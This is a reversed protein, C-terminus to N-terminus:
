MPSQNTKTAEEYTPPCTSPLNIGISYDLPIDVFGDSKPLTVNESQHQSVKRGMKAKKYIWGLLYVSAFVVAVLAACVIIMLVNFILAKM